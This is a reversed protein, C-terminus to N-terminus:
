TELPQSVEGDIRMVMQIFDRIKAPDKRGDTEVGTSVDVGWPQIEEVVQGVNAPTLGGAIIV